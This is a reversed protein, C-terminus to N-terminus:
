VYEVFWGRPKVKFIYTHQEFHEIAQGVLAIRHKNYLVIHIHNFHGVMYYVYPGLTPGHASSQNALACRRLNCAKTAAVGALVQAM